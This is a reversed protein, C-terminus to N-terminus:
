TADASAVLSLHRGGSMAASATGSGSWLFAPYGIEGQDPPAFEVPAGSSKEAM